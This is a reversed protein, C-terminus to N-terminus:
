YTFTKKKYLRPKDSYISYSGQWCSANNGDHVPYCPMPMSVQGQTSTSGDTGFNRMAQSNWNPNTIINPIFYHLQFHLTQLTVAPITNKNILLQLVLSTKTAYRQHFPIKSIQEKIYALCVTYCDESAVKRRHM